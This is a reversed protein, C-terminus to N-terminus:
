IPMVRPDGADVPVPVGADAVPPPPPPVDTTGDCSPVGGQGNLVIRYSEGDDAGVVGRQDHDVIISCQSEVANGAGDVVRVGLKYVRGSKPGQRESRVQVRHCSDFLIDPAFHGDGLDDVPEDSSAWIFEAHLNPECADVVSVCDEVAVTHFKHNPPWLQINRPTLVPATSLCAANVNETRGRLDTGSDDCGALGWVGLCLIARTLKGVSRQNM